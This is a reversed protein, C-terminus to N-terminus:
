VHTPPAAGQVVKFFEDEVGRRTVAMDAYARADREDDLRIMLRWKGPEKLSVAVVYFKDGM